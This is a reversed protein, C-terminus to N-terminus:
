FHQATKKEGWVRFHHWKLLIATGLLSWCKLPAWRGGSQFAANWLGVSIPSVRWCLFSSTLYWGHFIRLTLDEIPFCTKCSYAGFSPHGPWCLSHKWHHVYRRFTVGCTFAAGPPCTDAIVRLRACTSETNHLFTRFDKRTERCPLRPQWWLLAIPCFFTAWWFQSISSVLNVVM